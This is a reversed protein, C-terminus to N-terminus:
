FCYEDMDNPPHSITCKKIIDPLAQLRCGRILKVPRRLIALEKPYVLGFHECQNQDQIENKAYCITTGGAVRYAIRQIISCTRSSNNRDLVNNSMMVM